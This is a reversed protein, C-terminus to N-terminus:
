SVDVGELAVIIDGPKMDKAISNDRIRHITLGDSTHIITFGAEGPPIVTEMLKTDELFKSNTSQRTQAHLDEVKSAGGLDTASRYQALRARQMVVASLHDPVDVPQAFDPTNVPMPNSNPRNYQDMGFSALSPQRSPQRMMMTSGDRPMGPRQRLPSSHQMPQQLPHEMQHMHFLDSHSTNMPSGPMQYLPMDPQANMNLNDNLHRSSVNLPSGNMQQRFSTNVPSGNMQQRFSTNVPSGNMQQRFSTNVPSGNMQQRFSTNVPSGSMLQRYSPNVPNGQMLDRSSMQVNGNLPQMLLPNQMLEVPIGEVPNLSRVSTQMFPNMRIGQTVPKFESSPAKERPSADEEFVDIPSSPENVSDRSERKKETKKRSKSKSTKKKTDKKSKRSKSKSRYKREEYSDDDSDHSYSRHGRHKPPTRSRSKDADREDLYDLIDLKLTDIGACALISDLVGGGDGGGWQDDYSDMTNAYDFSEQYRKTRSRGREYTQRPM